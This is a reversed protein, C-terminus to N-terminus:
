GTERGELVKLLRKAPVYGPLLEGNELVMTPTGSVGLLQGTNFHEAVPNACQKAPIQKGSKADTIAEQPDDACWVSIMTKATPSQMGARPFALYRVEIGQENLAKVEQHFKRCYGCDVDTFVTVTHKTKNEPSFVIMSEEGLKDLTDLRAQRRQAETLNERTRLNLIDGRVVYRGDESIYLIYPGYTVEYLGPIPAQQIRDPEMNPVINDVADRVAAPVDGALAPTQSALLMILILLVPHKRM